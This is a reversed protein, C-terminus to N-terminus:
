AGICYSPAPEPRTSSRLKSQQPLLMIDILYVLFDKRPHGDLTGSARSICALDLELLDSSEASVDLCLSLVIPVLWVCVFFAFFTESETGIMKGEIAAIWQRM